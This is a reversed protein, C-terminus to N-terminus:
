EVFPNKFSLIVKAVEPRMMEKPPLKGELLMKRIKTGSPRIIDDGSHPCINSNVYGMCKKCYYFEKFFIPTIGLDPFDNFIEQAEYPGYYNGVGAHDRGVIFHTCGFNKRVIAHFIAERPGAYRMETRLIALVAKDKLYYHKILEEYAKLIVEDKFDGPKKRGIVPNIFLGDVFTLATKQIYEHGMHPANRTQFGVVTRWGKARFLVRTEIPRLTYKEYPNEIGQIFDIRGGILRDKMQFTKLVGPHKTDTTKFVRQAHEKKDFTYIDEINLLAIPLKEYTLVVVDGTSIKKERIEELTADLVIPITWPTDDELRMNKLVSIYDNQTMFGELPSFIGYAINELDVALDRSVEIRPLEKVQELIRSKAHVELVRNVLKGGHPRPLGAM